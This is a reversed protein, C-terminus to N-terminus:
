PRDPDTGTDIEALRREAEEKRLKPVRVVLVAGRDDNADPVVTLLPFHRLHRYRRRRCGSLLTLARLLM